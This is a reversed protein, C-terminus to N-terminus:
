KQLWFHNMYLYLINYLTYKINKYGFSILSMIIAMFLKLLSLTVSNLPIFLSLLSISGFLAGLILKYLRAYRKLAVNVTLLLLYDLIFNILFVLDIYIVM